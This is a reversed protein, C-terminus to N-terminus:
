SPPLARHRRWQQDIQDGNSETITMRAPLYGLAPALWVELRQDDAQRAARVWKQASLKGGPLTLEESGHCVWTWIDAGAASVTQLSLRRGPQFAQPQSAALAGLNLLVSLRDQAGPQLALKAGSPLMASDASPAFVVTLDKGKHDVFKEPQLAQLGIRGQSSQSRTKGMLSYDLQAQYRAGKKQWQLRGDLRYPFQNSRVQYEILTSAALRESVLREQARANALLSLALLVPLGFKKARKLFAQVAAGHPTSGALRHLMTGESSMRGPAVNKLANAFLPINGVPDTILILLITASVFTYSM